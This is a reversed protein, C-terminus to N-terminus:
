EDQEREFVQHLKEHLTDCFTCEEEPPTVRSDLYARDKDSLEHWILDMRNRFQEKVREDSHETVGRELALYAPLKAKPDYACHLCRDVNKLEIRLPLLGVVLDPVPPPTSFYIHMKNNIENLLEFRSGWKQLTTLEEPTFEATNPTVYQGSGLCKEHKGLLGDFDTRGLFDIPVSSRCIPCIAQSM